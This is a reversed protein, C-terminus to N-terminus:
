YKFFLKHDGRTIKIFKLYYSTSVFKLNNPGNDHTGREGKLSRRVNIFSILAWLVITDDLWSCKTNVKANVKM